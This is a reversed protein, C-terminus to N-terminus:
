EKRYFKLMGLTLLLGIVLSIGLIRFSQAYDLYYILVGILSPGLVKGLNKLSGVLGMSTALNEKGIQSSIQAIIAPFILSQAIGILVATIIFFVKNNVNPLYFLSVALILVGLFIVVKYGIKDAIKGGVPNFILKVTEQISFFVGILAINFGISSAYIPLFAKIAYLIMYVFSELSGAVWVSFNRSGGVFSSIMHSFFSTSTNAEVNKIDYIQVVPIFAIVSLFGIITFVSIPDLVLLLWGALAPGVIYGGNRALGFWAIREARSNSSLEAVYALTVPGYIATAIGHVIRVVFLEDPTSVWRYVFPMIAFFLTGIILWSRRGWRDSMIGVIPKLIIGTLTSVSVILGLFVEGAGLSAAFVPLLPTKGMQYASRVIFDALSVNIFDRSFRM